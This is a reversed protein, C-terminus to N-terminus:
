PAMKRSMHPAYNLNHEELDSENM